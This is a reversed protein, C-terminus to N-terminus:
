LDVIALNDSFYLAAYAKTGVIALGRSARQGAPRDTQPGFLPAFEAPADRRRLDVLFALDNPM